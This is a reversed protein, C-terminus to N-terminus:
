IITVSNSIFQLGVCLSQLGPGNGSIEPNKLDRFDTIKRLIQIILRIWKPIIKRALFKSSWVIIIGLGNKEHITPSLKSVHIVNITNSAGERLFGPFIRMYRINKSFLIMPRCKAASLIPRDENFNKQYTGYFKTNRCSHRKSLDLDDLTM